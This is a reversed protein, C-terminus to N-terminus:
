YCVKGRRCFVSHAGLVAFRQCGADKRYDQADRDQDEERRQQHMMVPDAPMGLTALDAGEAVGRWGDSSDDAQDDGHLHQHHEQDARGTAARRAKNRKGGGTRRRGAELETQVGDMEQKQLYGIKM